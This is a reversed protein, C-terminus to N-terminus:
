AIHTGECVAVQVLNMSIIEQIHQVQVWLKVLGERAIQLDGEVHPVYTGRM